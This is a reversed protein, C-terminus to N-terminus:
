LNYPFLSRPLEKEAYQRKLRLKQSQHSYLSKRERGSIGTLCSNIDM